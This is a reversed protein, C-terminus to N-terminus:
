QQELATDATDDKAPAEAVLKVKVPGAKKLPRRVAKYGALTLKIEAPLKLALTIPTVGRSAHNVQVDAGPPDTEIAIQEEVAAPADAAVKATATKAPAVASKAPAEKAPAANRPEDRAPPPRSDGSPPATAPLKDSTPAPTEVVVTKSRRLLVWGAVSLGAALVLGGVLLIVGGRGSKAPAKAVVVAPPPAVPQQGSPKAPDKKFIEGVGSPSSPSEGNAGAAGTFAAPDIKMEDSVTRDVPAALGPRDVDALTADVDAFESARAAFDDTLDKRGADGPMAINPAEMEFMTAQQPTAQPEVVPPIPTAAVIPRAATVPRPAPIVPPITTARVPMQGSARAAAQQASTRKASGDQIKLLRARLEAMSHPRRNRDKELCQLILADMEPSVETLTSPAPAPKTLHQKILEVMSDAVFPLRGTVMRFLVAGLGYIDTQPGVNKTQQVQEPAMYQPTGVVIGAATQNGSQKIKALGFDLLKVVNNKLLFINGPKLDRHIVGKDHAAQLGDAVFAGIRATEAEPIPGKKLRDAISQGELLEMVLYLVGDTESQGFDVIRVVNPHDISRTAKAEQFFRRVMDPHEVDIGKHLIKVAVKDGLFKHEGIYVQGVGGQDLLTRLVYNGLTRGILANSM